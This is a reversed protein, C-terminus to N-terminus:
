SRRLFARCIAAEECLCIEEKVKKQLQLPAAGLKVQQETLSNLRQATAYAEKENDLAADAVQLTIYASAVAQRVTQQATQADAQTGQLQNRAQRTRWGIGGNTEITFLIGYNSANGLDFPSVSNNLGGINFMPNVPARQSSLNAKASAVQYTAAMLIPSNQQAIEQAQSLTLKQAPPIPPPLEPPRHTEQAYARLHFCFLAFGVTRVLLRPHICPRSETDTHNNQSRNMPRM